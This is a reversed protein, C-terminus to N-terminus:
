IIRDVIWIVVFKSFTPLMTTVSDYVNVVFGKVFVSFCSCRVAWTVISCDHGHKTMKRRCFCVFKKLYSQVFTSTEYSLFTVKISHEGVEGSGDEEDVESGDEEAANTGQAQYTKFSCNSDHIMAVLILLCSIVQNNVQKKNYAEM